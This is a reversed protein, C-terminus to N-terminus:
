KDGLHQLTELTVKKRLYNQTFITILLIVVLLTFLMMYASTIATNWLLITIIGFLAVQGLFIFFPIFRGKFLEQEDTWHLKPNQIDVIFNIMVALWNYLLSIVIWGIFIPVPLQIYIGVGVILIFPLLAVLYAIFLKANILQRFPIPLFLMLKRSEGERSISTFATANMSFILVSVMFLILLLNKEPVATILATLEEGMDLFLIVTLFVPFFLSQIVCQMLFAPTRFIVKVDKLMYTILSSRQKTLKQAARDSLSGKSGSSMGRVGKLYFRQGAWVFLLVSIIFLLLLALLSLFGSWSAAFHLSGAGFYAPPFILTILRMFGEQEQMYTMLTDMLASSDMNLRIVVNILIVFLLSATGMFIKSRDKNKAINVYRMIFMLIVAVLSFPIIPFIIFLIFGYVYFLFPADSLSGYMFLFPLLMFAAAFYNYILPNAAKGALLQYPHVPLPIYASIDDSFYFASLIMVFSLFMLVIAVSLLVLGLLMSEQNIEALFNYSYTLMSHLGQLVLIAFPILFIALIVYVWANSQKGASSYQMKLMIKTLTWTNRMM